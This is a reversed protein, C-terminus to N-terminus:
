KEGKSYILTKCGPDRKNKVPTGAPGLIRLDARNQIDLNRWISLLTEFFPQFGSSYIMKVRLTGSLSM